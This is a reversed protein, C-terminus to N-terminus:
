MYALEKNTCRGPVLSIKCSDSYHDYIPNFVNTEMYAKIPASSNFFYYDLDQESFNLLFLLDALDGPDNTGNFLYINMWAESTRMPDTLFDFTTINLAHKTDKNCLADQLFSRIGWGMYFKKCSAKDVVLDKV